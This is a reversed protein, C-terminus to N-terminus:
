IALLNNININSYKQARKHAIYRNKEVCRINGTMMQVFLSPSVTRHVPCRGSFSYHHQM